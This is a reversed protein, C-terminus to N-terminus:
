KCCRKSLNDLTKAYAEKASIEISGDSLERIQYKINRITLYFDAYELATKPIYISCNYNTM